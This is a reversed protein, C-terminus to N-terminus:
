VTRSNRYMIRDATSLLAQNNLGVDGEVVEEEDASELIVKIVSVDRGAYTPQNAIADPQSLDEPADAAVHVTPVMVINMTLDEPAALQDHPSPKVARTINEEPVYPQKIAALPINSGRPKKKPTPATAPM